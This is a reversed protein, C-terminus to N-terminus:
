TDVMPSGADLRTTARCGARPEGTEGIERMDADVVDQEDRAQVVREDERLVALQLLDDELLEEVEVDPVRRADGVDDVPASASASAQSRARKLRTMAEVHTPSM